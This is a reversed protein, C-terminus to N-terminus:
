TTRGFGFARNPLTPVPLMRYPIFAIKGPMDIIHVDIRNLVTENRPHAVPHWGRKMTMHFEAVIRDIPRAILEVITM